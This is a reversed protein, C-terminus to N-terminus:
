STAAPSPPFKRYPARRENSFGSTIVSLCTQQTMVSMVAPNVSDAVFRVSWEPFDRTVGQEAAMEQPLENLTRQTHCGLTPWFIRLLTCTSIIASTHASELFRAPTSWWHWAM